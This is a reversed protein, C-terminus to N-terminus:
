PFWRSSALGGGVAWSLEAPAPGADGLLERVRVAAVHVADAVEPTLGAEGGAASVEIAVVDVRAPVPAGLARADALVKPLELGRERAAEAAKLPVVTVAGPERLGSAVSDVVVVREFGEMQDLLRTGSLASMRVEAGRPPDALLAEAVRWAAGDDRRGRSGLCLVLTKAGSQDNM